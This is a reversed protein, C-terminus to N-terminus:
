HAEQWNAGVGVDVKLPVQLEVAGEMVQRVTDRLTPVSENKCEFVLEDHVQLVMRMPLNQERILADIKIMALKIIDAASGQIPANMAARVQFNQDRGSMDLDAINRRRGFMTAVFGNREADAAITDFYARVGSFRAFYNEIYQKAVTMPVELEKALRFAGMGYIIGFNITKGIRRMDSTVAVDAPVHLIERTTEEHIDQGNKFAAILTPDGSMHALLRLEIQSYDAVILSYGEEAIFAARIKRGETTRIPINQLNPDSSSLRGTGTQTQNFRSHIRGTKRALVEPLADLYTSKLKHFGRYELLKKAIPHVPELLELVSSDTSVGSKTRKLGKTPLALKEFLVEALQKPSNLNFETGALAFIEKELQILQRGAERSLEGLYECNVKVGNRELRGLVEVLPMEIENFLRELNQEGLLPELKHWLMWTVHADQASYETAANFDVYRFDPLGKTVEDYEILTRNLHDLALASLNHSRRDPNLLYSAILTDFYCGEVELGHEGLISIDYKLNQGIKKITKDKLIPGLTNKLKEWSVQNEAPIYHPESSKLADSFALVAQAPKASPPQESESQESDSRALHGVPLYYAETDSWSFSIGALKAEQVNLSSTETDIAFVPQRKLLAIFDDYRDATITAYKWSTAKAVMVVTNEPLKLEKVLSHFELRDVLATLVASDPAGRRLVDTFESSALSELTVKRGSREIEIPVDHVLAVLRKSLRLQEANLELQELIKARGRIATQNTLEARRTILSEVDGFIEILQAATKPGVGELGPVNDSSDGVLALYDMVQAPFVGFKKKVEDPGIHQDKMADWVSIGPTILQTLDKDATIIVAENGSAKIHKAFTAILDDAEFGAQEFVPLGLARSLERFYPMQKALEPPCEPRNAKYQDYLDHRFNKRGSDFIMVIHESDSQTLLKMLMRTFGFLANTPFGEKTTLPQVAFFARFIYGSGDVLYVRKPASGTTANSQESM